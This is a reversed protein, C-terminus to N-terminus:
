EGSSRRLSKAFINEVYFHIVVLIVIEALSVIVMFGTSGLISRLEGISYLFAASCSIFICYIYAAVTLAGMGLSKSHIVLATELNKMAIGM